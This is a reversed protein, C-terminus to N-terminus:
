GLFSPCSQAEMHKNRIIYICFELASVGHQQLLKYYKSGYQARAPVSIRDIIIKRDISAAQKIQKEFISIQNVIPTVLILYILCNSKLGKNVIGVVTEMGYISGGDECTRGNNKPFFMYPPNSILTGRLTMDFSEYSTCHFEIANMHNLEANAKAYTLAKTNVDLCSVPKCGENYATFGLLGTGTGVDVVPGSLEANNKLWTALVVSDQNLFVADKAPHNLPDAILLYNFFPIIRYRSRAFNGRQEFIPTLADWTSSNFLNYIKTKPLATNNLFLEGLDKLKYNIGTANEYYKKDICHELFIPDGRTFKKKLLAEKANVREPYLRIYNVDHESQPVFQLM